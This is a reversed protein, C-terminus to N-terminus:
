SIVRVTRGRVELKGACFLRVAEPYAQHEEVLVRIALSEATDGERVPIARQVIIPGADVDETVFHVTCGTIKVGAAIVAEHVQMGQLGAFAPLLSPHINIVKHPYRQIFFPSLIRNFGALCVLGIDRAALEKALAQEFEARTVTPQPYGEDAIVAAIHEDAIDPDGATLGVHLAM